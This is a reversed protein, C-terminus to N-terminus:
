SVKSVHKKTEKRVNAYKIYNIKSRKIWNYTYKNWKETNIHRKQVRKKRKEKIERLKLM